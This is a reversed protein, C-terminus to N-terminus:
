VVFKFNCVPRLSGSVCFSGVNGVKGDVFKVKEELLSKISQQNGRRRKGRPERLLTISGKGYGAFEMEAVVNDAKSSVGLLFVMVTLLSEKM